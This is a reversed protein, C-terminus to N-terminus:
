ATKPTTGRYAEGSSMMAWLIRAMKNAWAVAVLKRPKRTLLQHLWPSVAQSGPSHVATRVMSMAGLVLLQRLRENGERSIGRLRPRGGTSHQKPTLGLWAAFHRGSTFRAADVNLVLTIAGIPGVGPVGALLQSLPHNKHMQRLKAELMALQADLQAIQEGLLTIMERAPTPIDAEAVRALLADIKDIGRAAVLGFEAAHGRVANVAQTRQRVLLERVRPVTADAQAAASKVPVFTMDPRGAAECIAQADIRDNKGRKVFPKVYQPPILQVTHGLRALERGWHHSAGCAEMAVDTPELKAFYELLAARKLDRRVVPRDQADIGHLTFVYKSTDIAIRKLKM